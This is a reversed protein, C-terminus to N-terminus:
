KKKKGIYRIVDAKGNHYKGEKLQILDISLQQVELENFDELLMEETYLMSPDKPGGSNNKLQNPNFAELILLGNPKLWHMVKQHISNRTKEPFHAYILAVVDFSNAPYLITNADQVQYNLVIKNQDALL